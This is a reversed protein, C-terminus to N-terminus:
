QVYKQAEKQVQTKNYRGLSSLRGELLTVVQLDNGLEDIGALDASLLASELLGKCQRLHYKAQGVYLDSLILNVPEQAQGQM